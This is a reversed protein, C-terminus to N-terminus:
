LAWSQDSSYPRTCLLTCWALALSVNNFSQRSLAARKSLGASCASASAVSGQTIRSALDTRQWVRWYDPLSTRASCSRRWQVSLQLWLLQKCHPTHGRCYYICTWLEHRKWRCMCVTSIPLCSVMQAYVVDRHNILMYIIMRVLWM